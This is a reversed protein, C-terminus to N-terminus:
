LRVFSLLVIINLGIDVSTCWVLVLVLGNEQLIETLIAIFFTRHHRAGFNLRLRRLSQLCDARLTIPRNM